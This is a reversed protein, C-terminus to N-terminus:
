KPYRFFHIFTLEAQWVEHGPVTMGFITSRVKAMGRQRVEGDLLTPTAFADTNRKTKHVTQEACLQDHTVKEFGVWGLIETGLGVWLLRWGM